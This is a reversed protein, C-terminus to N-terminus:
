GRFHMAFGLTYGVAYLGNPAMTNGELSYESDAALIRGVANLALKDAKLRSVPNTVSALRFQIIGKRASQVQVRHWCLV